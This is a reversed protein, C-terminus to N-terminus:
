PNTVKTQIAAIAAANTDLTAAAADLAGQDVVSAAHSAKLTDVASSLAALAAAQDNAKQQLDAASAM